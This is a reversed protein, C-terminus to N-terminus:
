CEGAGQWGQSDAPGQFAYIDTTDNNPSTSGPGTVAQADIHDAALLVDGLLAIAAMGGILIKSKMSILKLNSLQTSRPLIRAEYFHIIGLLSPLLALISKGLPM